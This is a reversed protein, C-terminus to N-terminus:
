EARLSEVPDLRSANRAPVVGSALGILFSLCVALAAYSWPTHVPLSPFAFSLAQLIIFGSSLGAFGGLTSLLVAEVLFLALIESRKAGVALLLGIENTREAVSITMIALIGIAGVFLSIGGIAAVAFTLVDLVSGLVDLMKEEPTITFDMRGHRAELLKSVAGVVREVPVDPDYVVDIEMLTDRNFLELARSAPIFVTDDMDFGLIQGKSAMVGVVRYSQGGVRIRTGLPNASGYLEEKAKSGLVAFARANEFPDHPLFRGSAVSMHFARPLDPGVGSVTVRRSKGNAKIEANGSFGPNVSEVYPIRQMASADELTLPREAGFIGVPPGGHTEAKGPTIGVINTGFQTFESVVFRHLGEGISTLMIVSAIGVSIGVVTLLSRTRHSVLAALSFRILDSYNM